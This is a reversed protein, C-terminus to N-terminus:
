GGLLKMEEELFFDRYGPPANVINGFHDLELPHINVGGNEREFYLILVDEASLYKHNRVETRVRDVLYDSHTEILFCKDQTKALVALFSGLEAQAKPHLHVEPQQLLFISGKRRQLSDVVIPLVQSVGYGVDVLNFAPGSIKVNIQFPASDKSGMRQIGVDTFLGSQKGFSDLAQRLQSWADPDSLSTKALIMPVHSGEPKPVDALPDYTRKPHTRIPAFAYPRPEREEMLSFGLQKLFEQDSESLSGEAREWKM